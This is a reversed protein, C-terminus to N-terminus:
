VGKAYFAISLTGSNTANTYSVRLSKYFANTINRIHSGAATVSVTTTEGSNPLTVWTVGDVTAQLVASGTATSTTTLVIAAGLMLDLPIAASVYVATGTIALADTLLKSASKM